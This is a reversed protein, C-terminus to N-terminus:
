LNVIYVLIFICCTSLFNKSSDSKLFIPTKKKKLSNTNYEGYQTCSRILCILEKRCEEDCTSPRKPSNKWYHRYYLDLTSDNTALEELFSDWESLALSKLNYAERASYLKTWKPNDNANADELDLIYSYRDVVQRTSNEYDGEIYVISYGPNLYTYPTVSGAIYAVGIVRKPDDKDYFLEIEDNHTHGFFQATITQEFRSLINYYNTQWIKLCDSHGPPVHGIIHVKENNNEAEQLIDMLWQLEQLPDTSNLILWWNDHFCYNMNLSIVRLGPRILTSYFAGQRVLSLSKEPLWRSWKEALDDYLWDIKFEDEVPLHPFLNPPVAEHNGLAPYVPTNPFYENFLAVTENLVSLSDNKYFSWSDHPPLDGTWIIYDVDSHEKALHEFLNDLTRRPTDCKWGGWKGSKTANPTPEGNDPRCCLPLKCEAWTDEVYSPDFHTDSIHLVKLRPADVAPRQIEVRKPKKPEKPIEVKWLGKKSKYGTGECQSGILFECIESSSLKSQRLITMLAPGNLKLMGDCVDKTMINLNDCLDIGLDILEENTRGDAIFFRMMSVASKCADCMADAAQKQGLNLNSNLLGMVNSVPDRASRKRIRPKFSEYYAELAELQSKLDQRQKKICEQNPVYHRGVVNYFYGSCDKSSEIVPSGSIISVACVLSLLVRWM